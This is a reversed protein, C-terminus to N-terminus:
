DYWDRLNSEKAEQREGTAWLANRIEWEFEKLARLESGVFLGGILGNIVGTGLGFTSLLILVFSVYNYPSWFIAVFCGISVPVAALFHAMRLRRQRRERLTYVSIMNLIERYTSSPLYNIQTTSTSRLHREKSSRISKTDVSKRSTSTSQQISLSSKNFPLNEKSALVPRENYSETSAAIGNMSASNFSIRITAEVSFHDSLSCGLTAHRETFGVRTEEVEWDLGSHEEAGFFVYDLRKGNPDDSSDDITVIQGKSIKQRDEKRWRWSNLISDCTTGNETINFAASPMIKGRDKEPADVASSLSSDPHLIRWTDKVRGHTTLIRCALSDPIMNFDGLGLAYHGKEVADRMLRAIEWAQATRHCLYSDNPEREYPAHLHTCFVEVVDKRGKGFRIKACAVGKGVFWDGRFFATPRGNLPYRVMNSEEIPWKSLIALGGGFIGSHYFKGYPLIYMTLKRIQQYDESTWCEQLAVINPVPNASALRSGIASLRERRHKSIYKLGWCNLTTIQLKQHSQSISAASM